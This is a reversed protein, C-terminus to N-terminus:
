GIVANSLVPFKGTAKGIKIMEEIAMDTLEACADKNVGTGCTLNMVAIFNMVKKQPQNDASLGSAMCTLSILVLALKTKKRM